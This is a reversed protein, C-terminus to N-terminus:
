VDVFTWMLDNNLCGLLYSALVVPAVMLLAQIWGREMCLGYFSFIIFAFGILNCPVDPRPLFVLAAFTAQILVYWLVFLRRYLQQLQGQGGIQFLISTEVLRALKVIINGSTSIQFSILIPGIEVNHHVQRFVYPM